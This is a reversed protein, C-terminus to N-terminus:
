KPRPFLIKRANTETRAVCDRCKPCTFYMSERSMGERDVEVYEHDFFYNVIVESRADLYDIEEGCKPCKGDPYKGYEMKKEGGLSAAEKNDTNYHRALTTEQDANM